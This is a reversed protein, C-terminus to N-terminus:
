NSAKLESGLDLAGEFRGEYAERCRKRTSSYKDCDSSGNAKSRFSGETQNDEENEETQKGDENLKPQMAAAERGSPASSGPEAGKASVKIPKAGLSASSLLSLIVPKPDIYVWRSGSWDKSIRIRKRQCSIFFAEGLYLYANSELWM